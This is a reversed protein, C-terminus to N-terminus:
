GMPHPPPVTNDWLEYRNGLLVERQLLFTRGLIELIGDLLPSWLPKGKGSASASSLAPSRTQLLHLELKWWDNWWPRPGRYQWSPM